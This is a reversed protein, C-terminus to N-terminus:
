ELLSKNDGQTSVGHFPTFPTFINKAAEGRKNGKRVKRGLMDELQGRKKQENREESEKDPVDLKRSTPQKRGTRKIWAAEM